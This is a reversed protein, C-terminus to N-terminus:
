NTTPQQPPVKLMREPRKYTMETMKSYGRPQEMKIRLNSTIVPVQSSVKTAPDWRYALEEREMIRTIRGFFLSAQKSFRSKPLSIAVRDGVELRQGLADLAAM